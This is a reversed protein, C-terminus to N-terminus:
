SIFFDKCTPNIGGEKLMRMQCPLVQLGYMASGDAQINIVRKGPSALSAGLSLAPGSGIAGGTIALHTFKPCGQLNPLRDLFM